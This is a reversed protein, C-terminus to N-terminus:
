LRAESTRCHLIFVIHNRRVTHFYSEVGGTYDVCSVRYGFLLASSKSV